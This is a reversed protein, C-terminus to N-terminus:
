TLMYAHNTNHLNKVQSVMCKVYLFTLTRRLGTEDPSLTTLMCCFYGALM